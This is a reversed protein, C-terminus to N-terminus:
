ANELADIRLNWEKFIPLHHVGIDGMEGPLRTDNRIEKTIEPNYEGKIFAEWGNLGRIMTLCGSNLNPIGKSDIIRFLGVQATWDNSIEEPNQTLRAIQADYDFPERM